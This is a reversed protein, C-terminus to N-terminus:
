RQAQLAKTVTAASAPMMTTTKEQHLTALAEERKSNLRM